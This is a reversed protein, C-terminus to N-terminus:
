LALGQARSAEQRQHSNSNTAQLPCWMRVWQPHDRLHDLLRREMWFQGASIQLSYGLILSKMSKNFLDIESDWNNWNRDLEFRISMNVKILNSMSSVNIMRFKLM